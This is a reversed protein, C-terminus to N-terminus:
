DMSYFNKFILYNQEIDYDETLESFYYKKLDPNNNLTREKMKRSRSLSVEPHFQVGWVPKNKYQFAKINYNKSTALVTFDVPLNRVEDYHSEYFIPDKMDHFLPHSTISIRRWGVESPKGPLCLEQEALLKALM